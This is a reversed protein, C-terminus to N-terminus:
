IESNKRYTKKPKVVAVPDEESIKSQDEPQPPDEVPLKISTVFNDVKIREGSDKILDPSDLIIFGEQPSSVPEGLALKFDEESPPSVGISECHQLLTPYTAIGTNKLFDKLPMRRKKLLDQLKIPPLGKIRYNSM